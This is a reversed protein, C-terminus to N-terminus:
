LKAIDRPIKKFTIGFQKLEEPSLANLDAYIVYGPVRNGVTSLFAHDLVTARERIYHFYYGTGAHIGLFAPNDKEAPEAFAQKTETFWVYERIKEVGVEENLNEGDILLPQGLEYFSFDGGLGDMREKFIKTGIVKLTSDKITPNGIKDFEDKHTEIAAQAESLLEAGNKLASVTLKKSFIETEQKGEYEYGGIIRKVREATTAEAYDEMEVLIFRRRGGDKKNRSLVAHATTGTGAFSDLILSDPDTAIELVRDILRSPKPTEFPSKGGFIAKLEKTAEDTHGTESYPWLNTVIRGDMEDLYRKFRIGGHGNGTFFLEPWCGKQYRCVADDKVEHFPRKLVIADISRPVSDPSTGCIQLRQEFDDIPKLEYDAWKNMIELMQPQGNSWHRGNTPYLMVGTLPHQVAYVMGPHTAAGPASADGSTWPRPDNDPSAYRADMDETRSLKQPTWGPTKGYVLIWDTESPIGKSDNRPSYTRQWVINTVFCNAGFIEDCILKLNTQENNDISIFIAGDEALLRYLLKLRPYMMCLWKDHRSLDERDVVKGLWKKIKPDNVNDNYAWNEIGTNYPPDIYVCKVKGEYRPLLAKLAELNDGKIIMNGSGNDEVHRGAEDFSYQRDLVRFPVELHHNIVKDKGIWELTPM